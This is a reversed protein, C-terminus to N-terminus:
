FAKFCTNCVVLEIPCNVMNQMVGYVNEGYLKVMNQLVGYLWILWVFEQGVMIYVYEGYLGIRCYMTVM